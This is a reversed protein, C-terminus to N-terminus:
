GLRGSSGGERPATDPEMTVTVTDGATVGAAERITGNVVMSHTGDGTPMVSSRYPVGNVTGRVKVQAKSGFAEEVHFPVIFYTWSGTADPKLLKAQFQQKQAM